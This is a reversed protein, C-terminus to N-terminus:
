RRRRLVTTGNLYGRGGTCNDIMQVTTLTSCDGAFTYPYAANLWWDCVGLNFNSTIQFFGSSLAYTGWMMHAGCLDDGPAGVVFHGLDDFSWVSAPEVPQMVNAPVDWTGVMSCHGDSVSPVNEDGNTPSPAIRVYIGRGGVGADFRVVDPSGDAFTVFKALTPGFSGDTVLNLQGSGLVYYYGRMTGPPAVPVGNANEQLLQWRGNGGFEVGAHPAPLLTAAGCALWRGVLVGDRDDNKLAFSAPFAWSRANAGARCSDAVDLQPQSPQPEPPLSSAWCAGAGGMAATGAAGADSTTGAAGAASTTGAAGAAATSGAAGAAGTSGAAGAAGASGAVGANGAAGLIGGHNPAGAAGMSSGQGAAGMSSGQGAAGMSSGQGAAGTSSGQGAAGAPKQAVVTLPHNGGADCGSAAVAAGLTALALWSAQRRSRPRCGSPTPRKMRGMTAHGARCPEVVLTQLAAASITGEVAQPGIQGAAVGAGV